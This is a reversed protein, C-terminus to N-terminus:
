ADVFRIRPRIITATANAALSLHAAIMYFAGTSVDQNTGTNSSNYIVDLDLKRSLRIVAGQNTQVDINTIVDVIKTFRERNNLNNPSTFTDVQLLDTVLPGPLAGNNQRDYYVILRISVPGQNVFTGILNLKKARVKRGIRQNIDPGQALPMIFVPPSFSASGALLTTNFFGDSFKLEPSVTKVTLTRQPVLNGFANQRKLAPKKKFATKKPQTKFMQCTARAFNFIRYEVFNSRARAIASLWKLSWPNHVMTGPVSFKM